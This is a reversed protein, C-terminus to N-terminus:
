FRGNRWWGKHECISVVIIIPLSTSPIGEKAKDILLESLANISKLSRLSFVMLVNNKSKQLGYLGNIPRQGAATPPAFRQDAMKTGINYFPWHYLISDFTINYKYILDENSILHLTEDNLHATTNPNLSGTLLKHWTPAEFLRMKLHMLGRGGIGILHANERESDNIYRQDYQVTLGAEVFRENILNWERSSSLQDAEILVQVKYRWSSSQDAKSNIAPWIISQTDLEANALTELESIM